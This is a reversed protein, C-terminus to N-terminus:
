KASANKAVNSRRELITKEVWRANENLKEMPATPANKLEEILLLTIKKNMKRTRFPKIKLRM